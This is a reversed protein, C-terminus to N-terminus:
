PGIREFFNGRCTLTPSGTTSGWAAELLMDNNVTTDVTVDAGTSAVGAMTQNAGNSSFINAAVSEYGSICFSWTGGAGNSHCQAILEAKWRFGQSTTGSWETTGITFSARSSGGFYVSLTLTQNTSGQTGTGWATLRYTTNANADGGDITFADSLPTDSAATVGTGGASSQGRHPQNGDVSNLGVIQSRLSAIDAM